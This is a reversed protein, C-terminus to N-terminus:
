KFFCTRSGLLKAIRHHQLSSGAAAALAHSEHSVAVLKTRGKFSRLGFSGGASFATTCAGPLTNELATKRGGNMEDTDSHSLLSAAM